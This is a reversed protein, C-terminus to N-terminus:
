DLCLHANIAKLKFLAVNLALDVGLALFVVILQLFCVLDNLLQSVSQLVSLTLHLDCQVFVFLQHIPISLQLVLEGCGVLEIHYELALVAVFDDISFVANLQCLFLGHALELLHLLCLRAM